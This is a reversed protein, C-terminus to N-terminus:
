TKRRSSVKPPGGIYVFSLVATGACLGAMVLNMNGYGIAEKLEGALEPGVTLGINFMASNMGYLQAYPGNEGFFERNAKYYKDIVIGPEVVSSSGVGALAAGVCGLLGAYFVIQEVGGAHPFRLMAFIPALLAFSLTAVIKTGYRDTAWGAIPGVILDMIGIPLFMVGARLSSFGFLEHSRTAVTADISGITIAQILALLLAVLLSPNRMCPLIKVTRLLWHTQKPLIYATLDEEQPKLLPQRENTSSDEPTQNDAPTETPPTSTENDSEAEAEYRKAVKKEIVLLRMFFDVGLVALAIGLVGNVGTKEYLIGGM